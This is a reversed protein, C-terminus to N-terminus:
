QARVTAELRNSLRRGGDACIGSRGCKRNAELVITVDGDGDPAVKILWYSGSGNVRTASTVSGGTVTFAHDRVHRFSNNIADSFRVNFTFVTAGDHM